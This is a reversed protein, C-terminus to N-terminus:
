VVNDNEMTTEDEGLSEAEVVPEDPEPEHEAEAKLQTMLWAPNTMCYVVANGGDPYYGEYVTRVVESDALTFERKFCDVINSIPKNTERTHFRLNHCTKTDSMVELLLRKAMGKKRAQPSVYLDHLIVNDRDTVYFIIKALEVDDNMVSYKWPQYPAARHLQLLDFVTESIVLDTKKKQGGMKKLMTSLIRHIEEGIKLDAKKIVWM